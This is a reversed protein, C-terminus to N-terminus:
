LIEIIGRNGDVRVRQGTKLKTTAERVGVIAPMGYERAVVLASRIWWRRPAAPQHDGPQPHPSGPLYMTEPTTETPM